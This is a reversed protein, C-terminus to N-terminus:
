VLFLVKYDKSWLDSDAAWVEEGLVQKSVADIGDFIRAALTPVDSWQSSRTFNSGHGLSPQTLLKYHWTNVRLRMWALSHKAPGTGAVPLEIVDKSAKEPLVINIIYRALGFLELYPIYAYPAVGDVELIELCAKRLGDLGSPRGGLESWIKEFRREIEGVLGSPLVPGTVNAQLFANLAATGLKLLEDEPGLDDNATSPTAKDLDSSASAATNTFSRIIHDTVPSDVLVSLGNGVNLDTQSAM